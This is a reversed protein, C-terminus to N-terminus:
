ESFPDVWPKEKAKPEHEHQVEFPDVWKKARLSSPPTPREEETDEDTTEDDSTKEEDTPAEAPLEGSASPHSGISRERHAAGAVAAETAPVLHKAIPLQSRVLSVSLTADRNGVFSERHPTFGPALVTLQHMNESQPLVVHSSQAQGDILITANEPLAVITVVIQEPVVQVSETRHSARSAPANAIAAMILIAIWTAGIGRWFPRGAWLPWVGLDIKDAADRYAKDAENANEDEDRLRLAIGEMTKDLASRADRLDNVIQEATSRSAVQRQRYQYALLRKESDPVGKQPDFRFGAEKQRAWQVLNSRLKPGFGSVNWQEYLVDYATEIGEGRLTAKRGAGVKAIDERGISFQELFQRRQWRERDDILRQWEADYRSKLAAYEQRAKDFRSRANQYSSTYDDIKDTGVALTGARREGLTRQIARLRAAKRGEMSFRSRYVLTLILVVFCLTAPTGLVFGPLRAGLAVGLGAVTAACVSAVILPRVRRQISRSKPTQGPM